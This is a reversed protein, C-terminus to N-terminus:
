NNAYRKNLLWVLDLYAARNFQPIGAIVLVFRQHGIHLPWFGMHGNASADVISWAASSLGLNRHLLGSHRAHLSAIDASLASLEEATEHSFGCTSLYLGEQDSLLARASGSLAKIIEPLAEQLSGSPAEKKESCTTIWGLQQLRYLIELADQEKEKETWLHLQNKNLLQAADQSILSFLLRRSPDDSNASAAYYAGAPTPLIYDQETMLNYEAGSM